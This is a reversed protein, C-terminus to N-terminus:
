IFATVNGLIGNDATSFIPLVQVDATCEVLNAHGGNMENM